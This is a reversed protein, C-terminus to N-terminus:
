WVFEIKFGDRIDEGRFEIEARTPSSPFGEYGIRDGEVPYYFTVGNIEYSASEYQGYDKQNVYFEQKGVSVAYSGLPFLKAIGVLIVLAYVVKGLWMGKGHLSCLLYGATLVVVLLVYAYGYRMLPASLQWFLYSGAVAAM